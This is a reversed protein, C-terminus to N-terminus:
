ESVGQQVRRFNAESVVAGSSAGAATARVLSSWGIAPLQRAGELESALKMAEGHQGCDYLAAAALGRMAVQRPSKGAQSLANLHREQGYDRCLHLAARVATENGLAPSRTLGELM